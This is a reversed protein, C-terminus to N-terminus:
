ALKLSSATRATTKPMRLRQRLDPILKEASGGDLM